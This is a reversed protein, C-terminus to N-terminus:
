FFKSFHNGIKCMTNLITGKQNILAFDQEAHARSRELTPFFKRTVVFSILLMKVINKLLNVEEDHYM